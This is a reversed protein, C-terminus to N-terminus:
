QRSALAAIVANPLAADDWDPQAAGLRVIVLDYARSVYVRQGGVGDLFVMDDALFRQRSPFGLGPNSPNYYRMPQYPNAIWVQWGYNPYLPSPSLM